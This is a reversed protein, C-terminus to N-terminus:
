SRPRWVPRTKVSSAASTVIPALDGSCVFSHNRSRRLALLSAFKKSRRSGLFLGNVSSFEACHLEIHVLGIRVAIEGEIALSPINELRLRGGRVPATRKERSRRVPGNMSLAERIKAGICGIKYGAFLILLWQACDQWNPRFLTPVGGIRAPSSRRCLIHGFHGAGLDAITM